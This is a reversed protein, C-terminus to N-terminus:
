HDRSAIVFELDCDDFYIDPNVDYCAPMCWLDISAYSYAGCKWNFFVVQPLGTNEAAITALAVVPEITHRYSDSVNKIVKQIESLRLVERLHGKYVNRVEDNRKVRVTPYGNRIVTYEDGKFDKVKEGTVVTFNKNDTIQQWPNPTSELKMRMEVLEREWVQWISYAENFTSITKTYTQM